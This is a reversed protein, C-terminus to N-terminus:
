GRGGKVVRSTLVYMEVGWRVIWYSVAASARLLECTFATRLQIPIQGQVRSGRRRHLLCQPLTSQRSQSIKGHQHQALNRRRHLPRRRRPCLQHPVNQTVRERSKSLLSNTPPLLPTKSFPDLFTRHTSEENNVSILSQPGPRTQDPHRCPLWSNAANLPFENHQNIIRLFIVAILLHLRHTTWRTVRTMSVADADADSPM